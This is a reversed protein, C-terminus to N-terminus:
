KELWDLPNLPHNGKCIAFFLSPGEVSGTNGSLAITEGEQVKQGVSLLIESLHGYLTYYGGPHSIIVLKGYGKQWEAYEVLGSSVAKVPTEEEVLIEIGQNYTYIDFQPHKQKGFYSGIKGRVPWILKGKKRDFMARQRAIETELSQRKQELKQMFDQMATFSTKQERLMAQYNSRRGRIQHLLEQRRNREGQLTRYTEETVSKLLILNQERKELQEQERLLSEKESRFQQLLKKDQSILLQTLRLRVAFDSPNEAGLLIELYGLRGKKYLYRWRRALFTKLQQIKEERNQLERMSNDVLQNLDKLKETLGKWDKQITSIRRDLSELEALISREQLSYKRLATEQRQIEAQLKELEKQKSEILQQYEQLEKELDDFGPASYLLSGVIFFLGMV